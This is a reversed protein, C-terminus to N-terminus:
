HFVLNQPAHPQLLFASAAAPERCFARLVLPRRERGLQFRCVTTPVGPSLACRATTAVVQAEDFEPPASAGTAAVLAIEPLRPVIVEAWIRFEYNDRLRGLLSASVDYWLSVRPNTGLALEAPVGMRVAPEEGFVPYVAFRWPGSREPREIRFGGRTKYDSRSITRRTSASDEPGAPALGDRRWAVLVSRCDEPWRWQLVVYRGFDHGELGTVGTGFNAGEQLQVTVAETRAQVVVGTSWEGETWAVCIRYCYLVNPRLGSEEAETLQAAVLVGDGHHAPPDGEKRVVKVGRCGSPLSWQLRISCGSVSVTVEEAESAHNEASPESVFQIEERRM